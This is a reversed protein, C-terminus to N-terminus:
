EDMSICSIGGPRGFPDLDVVLALLRIAAPEEELAALYGSAAKRIRAVKGPTISELASVPQGPRRARVEVFCLADDLRTVIDIEGFRHYRYNRALVRHGRDELWRVSADEAQRGTLTSM